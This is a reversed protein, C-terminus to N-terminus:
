IGTVRCLASQRYVLLAARMDARIAQKGEIFFGAHSNTIQMEIGRRVSLETFTTDLVLGTNEGAPISHQVVPLGWIRDPGAESPSGWIYIGDTTRLLRVGEWDTAHMLVVNPVGRGGVRVKTMAKYVADPVPDAGKAQAQTNPYATTDLFGALNPPTGNGVLIQSDLRQRIMFPLRNNVYGRAQPEDELQEDTVPLWVAIKRVPSSREALELAAEPYAAGEAREAATNTFVTEEMYVVAAQSTTTQPIVDTIEVPRQASYVVTGTRTTEPPWGATTEFLAKMEHNAAVVDRAGQGNSIRGKYAASKVFLSGLDFPEDEDRAKGKSGDGSEGPKNEPRRGADERNKAAIADIDRLSEVTQAHDDIETNLTRIVDVKTKTDGQIATVKSMDLDPGAQRFIEALRDQSAKLKGEAEALAPFAM